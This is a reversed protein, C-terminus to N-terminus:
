KSKKYDEMRKEALKIEKPPTREGQKRFIHVVIFKSGDRFYFARYLKKNSEKRLEFLGRVQPIPKSHPERIRPGVEQLMRFSQRVRAEDEEEPLSSLFKKVYDHQFVQWETM